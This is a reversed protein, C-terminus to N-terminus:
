QPERPLVGYRRMRHALPLRGSRRLFRAVPTLDADAVSEIELAFEREASSLPDMDELQRELVPVTAESADTGAAQRATVRRALEDRPAVPCLICFPASYENALNWFRTRHQRDLFTADVIVALGAALIKDACSELREYTRHRAASSYRDGGPAPQRTREVDSRIRVADLQGVLRGSLLTKGSGSVGCTILMFPDGGYDMCRGALDIFVGTDELAQRRADADATEQSARIASVKARVMARYVLFHRLLALGEYDGTGELYTSLFVSALDPREHHVLDMIVFAVESMVDIWRLEPNFELADFITVKDDLYAMNALHMDGHCERVFGDGRRKRFRDGNEILSDLSWERLEGLLKGDARDGYLSNITEFNDAIDAFRRESEQAHQAPGAIPVRSHFEAVERALDRVMDENLRGDDTFRDLRNEDPFQRMKIAYEIVDGSDFLKPEDVSGHIPVVGLYMRSALRKNLRLEEDCAARRKELTSFDAFGLSVPKKIKFAFAGTLLVWSIHTEILRVRTVPHGYVAPNLMARILPPRSNNSEIGASM